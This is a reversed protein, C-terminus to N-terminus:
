VFIPRRARAHIVLSSFPTHPIYSATICCLRRHIHATIFPIYIKHSQSQTRPHALTSLLISVLAFLPLSHYLTFGPYSFALTRRPLSSKRAAPPYSVVLSSLTM